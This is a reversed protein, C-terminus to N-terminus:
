SGYNEKIIFPYSFNSEVNKIIDPLTKEGTYCLPSSLTKPIKIGCNCLTIYTIMKDDCLDISTSSNFLRINSKELMHALHRDKDLFIIFDYCYKTELNGNNDIFALLETNKLVDLVIGKIAFEECLRFIQNKISSNQNYGNYLIAGKFSQKM